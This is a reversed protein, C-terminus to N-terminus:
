LAGGGLGSIAGVVGGLLSAGGVELLWGVAHMDMIM